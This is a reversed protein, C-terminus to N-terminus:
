LIGEMSSSIANLMFPIAILLALLPLVVMVISSVMTFIFYKRTKEVSKWIEDLKKDQAELKKLIEQEM